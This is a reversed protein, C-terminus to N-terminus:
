HICLHFTQQLIGLHAVPPSSIRRRPPNFSCRPIPRTGVIPRCTLIMHESRAEDQQKEAPDAFQGLKQADEVLRQWEGGALYM